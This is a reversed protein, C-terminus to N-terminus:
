HLIYVYVYICMCVYVYICMYMYVYTCMYVYVYICMYMYVYICMYMYVHVVHPRCGIMTYVSVDYICIYLSVIYVVYYIHQFFSINSWFPEWGNRPNTKITRTKPPLVWRTVPYGSVFVDCVHISSNRSEGLLKPSTQLFGREKPHSIQLHIIIM